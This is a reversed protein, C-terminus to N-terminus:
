RRTSIDSEDYATSNDDSSGCASLLGLSLLLSMLILVRKRM